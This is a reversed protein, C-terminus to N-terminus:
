DFYDECAFSYQTCPCNFVMDVASERFRTVSGDEERLGGVFVVLPQGAGSLCVEDWDATDWSASLSAAHGGLGYEIQVNPERAQLEAGGWQFGVWQETDPPTMASVSGSVDVSVPCGLTYSTGLFRGTQRYDGDASSEEYMPDQDDPAFGHVTVDLDLGEFGPARFSFGVQSCDPELDPPEGEDEHSLEDGGDDDGGDGGFLGCGSALGVIAIVFAFRM